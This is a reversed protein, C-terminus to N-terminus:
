HNQTRTIKKKKSQNPSRRASGTSVCENGARRKERHQAVVHRECLETAEAQDPAANFPHAHHVARVPALWNGIADPTAPAMAAQIGGCGYHGVVIIHQVHLIPLSNTQVGTVLACRTRRIRSSFISSTM